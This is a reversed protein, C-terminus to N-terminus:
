SKPVITPGRDYAQWALELLAPCHAHQLVELEARKEKFYMKAWIPDVFVSSLNDLIDACKLTAGRPTSRSVHERDMERRVARNGDSLKSVHTVQMVLYVTDFDDMVWMLQEQTVDCDEIVDHLWGAAILRTEGPCHSKLTMAVREPHRIYPEESSRFQGRHCVTAFIAARKPLYILGPEGAANLAAFGTLGGDGAHTQTSM